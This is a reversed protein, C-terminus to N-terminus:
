GPTQPAVVVISFIGSPRTTPPANEDASINTPLFLTHTTPDLGMTRAGRRTKITQTSQFKGDIEKVVTVTGDGCSAFAEGTGPDFACADVGSGIPVTAVTKGNSVDIIAMVQNHCGAFLHRNAPDIALGSPETGGEIKWTESVKMTKTDIVQVESKDEINVYVHGQEDSAAFEPKGDLPITSKANTSPDAAADIVTASQGRGNFAIVTKSAPDYIICDPNNGTAVTGLVHLTKLDFVSVSNARGNSTFGRNLEPVLAVGHVGATDAIDGVLEGTERIVQTHTQRSLYVLKTAPDVTVYDWRGEGGITMVRVVKYNSQDEALVLAAIAFIIVMAVASFRSKIM